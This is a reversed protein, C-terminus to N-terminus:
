FFWSFSNQIFKITELYDLLDSSVGKPLEKLLEETLQTQLNNVIM